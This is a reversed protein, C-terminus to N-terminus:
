FLIQTATLRDFKMGYRGHGISYVLRALNRPETQRMKPQPLSILDALLQALEKANMGEPHRSGRSNPLVTCVDGYKDGLHKIKM